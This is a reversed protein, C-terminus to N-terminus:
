GRRRPRRKPPTGHAPLTRAAELVPRASSPSFGFQDRFAAAFASPNDYGVRTAVETVAHRGSELLQLAQELRRRRLYALPAVGLERRFARLVTSESAHCHRALQAVHFPEFLHEELWAKARTAISDGEFLVSTRTKQAAQEVGLFYVEKTLEAELFRAAKSAPKECVEREFVYRNVLEDVWRTRPLCRTAALVERLRRADVHPTYERVVATREREEIELIAVVSTGGHPLELTYASRAPVLAFTSRDLREARGSAQLTVVTTELPVILSPHPAVRAVGSAESDRDVRLKM